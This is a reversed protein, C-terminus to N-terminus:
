QKEITKLEKCAVLIHKHCSRAFTRNEQQRWYTWDFAIKAKTATNYDHQVFRLYNNTVVDATWTEELIFQSRTASVTYLPKAETIGVVKALVAMKVNDQLYQPRKYHKKPVVLLSELFTQKWAIPNLKQEIQFLKQLDRSAKYARLKNAALGTNPMQVIIYLMKQSNRQM